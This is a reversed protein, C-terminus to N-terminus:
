ALISSRTATGEELPDEGGLSRVLDAANCASEKSESGGPFGLFVPTPLRVWRWHIKGVWSDFRRRERRRYQYTPEEGNAGGPFGRGGM